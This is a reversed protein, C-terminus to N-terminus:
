FCGEGLKALKHLWQRVTKSAASLLSTPADECDVTGAVGRLITSYPTPTCVANENSDHGVARRNEVVQDVSM